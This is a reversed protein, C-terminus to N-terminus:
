IWYSPNNLLERLREQQCSSAYRLAIEKAESVVEEQCLQPLLVSALCVRAAQIGCLLDEMQGRVKEPVFIRFFEHFAKEAVSRSLAATKKQKEHRPWFMLHSYMGAYDFVPHGRGSFMWDLFCLGDSGIMINGPHLDGHVLADSPPIEQFLWALRQREEASFRGADLQGSFLIAEERLDPLKEQPLFIGHLKRWEKRLRRLLASFGETGEDQLIQDLSDGEIRELCLIEKGDQRRSGYVCPVPIGQQHMLLTMNKERLVLAQPVDSAYIKLVRRPGDAYVEALRGRGILFLKKRRLETL